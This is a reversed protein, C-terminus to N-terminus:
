EIVELTMTVLGNDDVPVGLDVSLVDVNKPILNMSFLFNVIAAELNDHSIQYVIDTTEVTPLTAAKLSKTEVPIKTTKAMQFTMM